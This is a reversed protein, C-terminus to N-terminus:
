AQVTRLLKLMDDKCQTYTSGNVEKKAYWLMHPLSSRGVVGRLITYCRRRIRNRDVAKKSVKKSVVCAVKPADKPKVPAFVLSFLAGNIRRPRQSLIAEIEVRTFRLRKPM